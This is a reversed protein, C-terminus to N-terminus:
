QAPETKSQDGPKTAAEGNAGGSASDNAGGADAGPANAAPPNDSSAKLCKAAIALYQDKHDDQWKEVIAHSKQSCSVVDELVVGPVEIESCTHPEAILCATILLHAAM